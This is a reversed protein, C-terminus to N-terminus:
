SKKSFIKKLFAGAAVVGILIIKKFALLFVGLKAFLGLKAAVGGAVLAALGYEATHDVKNDFDAYRNGDTFETVALISPMENKIQSIQQMSAVANLVLVGKRGLVRINYNLSNVGGKDTSYEKAWFLKRAQKDYSPQEAWGVLHMAAYGQKVREKNEEESAKKLDELMATYDIKDADEDKVHGDEDYSIVVGWGAESLPSTETPIIMGLTKNGPPNGWGEVLLKESDDPSLYRFNAPLDLTAIDNPLKIKGTQFKLSALFKEANNQSSDAATPAASTAETQPLQDTSQALSNLSVLTFLAFAFPKFM